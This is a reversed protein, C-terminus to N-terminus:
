IPLGFVIIMASFYNHNNFFRIFLHFALRVGTYM